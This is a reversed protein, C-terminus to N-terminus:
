RHGKAVHGALVGILADNEDPTGLTIRLCNALLRHSGHLNKVLIRAARLAAFSADADPVRALVFNAQTPFVEAGAKALGRYIHAQREAEGGEHAPQRRQM